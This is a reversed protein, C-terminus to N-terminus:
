GTELNKRLSHIAEVFPSNQRLQDAWDSEEELLEAAKIPSKLLEEWLQIYDTSCLAASRWKEIQLSALALIKACQAPDRLASAVPLLKERRAVLRQKAIARARMASTSSQACM